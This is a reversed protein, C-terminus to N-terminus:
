PLTDEAFSEGYLLIQHGDRIYNDPIALSPVFDLQEWFGQASSIVSQAVVARRDQRAFDLLTEVITRGYGQGRVAEHVRLSAIILVKDSLFIEMGWETTHLHTCWIDTDAVTVRTDLTTEIYDALVDVDNM